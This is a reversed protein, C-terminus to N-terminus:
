ALVGPSRYINTTRIEHDPFAKRVADVIAVAYPEAYVRDGATWAFRKHYDFLKVGTSAMAERLTQVRPDNCDLPGCRGTHKDKICVWDTDTAGGNFWDVWLVPREKQIEGDRGLVGVPAKPAEPISTSVLPEVVPAPTVVQVPRAELEVVRAALADREKRADDTEKLSSLFAADSRKAVGMWYDREERLNYARAQEGKLNTGLTKNEAELTDRERSVDQGKRVATQYLSEWRTVEGCLRTVEAQASDREEAVGRNAELMTKYDSRAEDREQCRQIVVEEHKERAVWDGHSVSGGTGEVPKGDQGIEPSRWVVQGDKWVAVGCSGVGLTYGFGSDDSVKHSGVSATGPRPAGSAGHPRIVEVKGKPGYLELRVEAEHFAGALHQAIKRAWYDGAVVEYKLALDSGTDLSDLGFTAKISGKIAEANASTVCWVSVRGSSLLQVTVDNVREEGRPAGSPVRDSNWPMSYSGRFAKKLYDKVDGTAELPGPTSMNGTGTVEIKHGAAPTLTIAREETGSSAPTLWGWAAALGKMAAGLVARTVKVGLFAVLIALCVTGGFYWFGPDPARDALNTFLTTDM